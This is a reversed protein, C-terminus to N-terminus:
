RAGGEFPVDPRLFLASVAGGLLLALIMLTFALVIIPLAISLARDRRENDPRLRM